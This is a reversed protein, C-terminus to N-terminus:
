SNVQRGGRKLQRLDIARGQEVLRACLTKVDGRRIKQSATTPLEQVFAVYGPAKYYALRERCFDSVSAALQEPADVSGRVVICAMVEQERIDDAVPAVACNEVAPHQFLVGEVEVAAINEGSRRIVNKRRDVFHFSDDDAVRVVDGTHFWGGDWAEATAEPNKLYEKFFGFRPNDGTHRVLLEGAEGEQVDVKQEDVIRYELDHPARGFCRTGVHRPERHAIICAGSGTETMAWAEILPFGFRNEFTAQHRPDVGAGFGFKIQSGMDDDSSPESNLLMAPMVGLYHLVTSRSDRVSQWWSRPHFRDLQVICGGTSLMAIFSCALANMHNLPLPTILRERGEELACLECLGKYWDGFLLFYENTLVCGKPRGTTGSTYLLAAETDNPSAQPTDCAKAQPLSNPMCHEVLPPRRESAALGSKAAEVHEPAAILCSSESHDLIYAAEEPRLASGVPVLSAGVANLALLHLFTEARNELMAAVRHGPGYGCARYTNALSAVAASVDGYTLRIAHDAYANAAEAPVDIFDHDEFRTAQESFLGFISGSALSPYASHNAM